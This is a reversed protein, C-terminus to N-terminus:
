NTLTAVFTQMEQKSKINHVQSLVESKQAESMNAFRQMADPHQALAMGFGLPLDTKDTM